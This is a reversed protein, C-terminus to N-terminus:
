CNALLYLGSEGDKGYRAVSEGVWKGLETGGTNDLARSDTKAYDRPLTACGALGVAFIVSFVLTLRKLKM